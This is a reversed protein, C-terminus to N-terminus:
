KIIYKLLLSIIRNYTEIKEQTGCDKSTVLAEKAKNVDPINHCFLHRTEARKELDGLSENRLFTTMLMCYGIADRVTETIPEEVMADLSQLNIIRNLKDLLRVEMGKIPEVGVLSSDKFNRFPDRGSYDHSKNRIIKYISEVAERANKYM